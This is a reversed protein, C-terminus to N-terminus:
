RPVNCQNNPGRELYPPHYVALVMFMTDNAKISWIAHEFTQTKKLMCKCVKITEQYIFGIREGRRNKRNVTELKYRNKNFESANVLTEDEECLWTEMPIAQIVAINFPRGRIKVLMVRESIAWYGVSCSSFGKDLLDREGYEHKGGGSYVLTTNNTVVKGAGTWRVECLGLLNIQLRQMEQIVQDM